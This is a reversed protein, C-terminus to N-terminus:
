VELTSATTLYKKIKKESSDVIKETCYEVEGQFWWNWFYRKEIGLYFLLEATFQNFLFNFMESQDKKLQM